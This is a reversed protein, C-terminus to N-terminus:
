LVSCGKVKKNFVAILNFNFFWFAAFKGSKPKDVKKLHKERFGLYVHYDADYELPPDVRLEYIIHCYTTLVLDEDFPIYCTEGNICNHWLEGIGVCIDDEDTYCGEDTLYRTLFERKM